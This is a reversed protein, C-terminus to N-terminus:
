GDHRMASMYAITQLDNKGFVHDLVIPEISFDGGSAEVFSRYGEACEENTCVAIIRPIGPQLNWVLSVIIGGNNNYILRPDRGSNLDLAELVMAIDNQVDGIQESSLPSACGARTDAEIWHTLRSTADAILSM